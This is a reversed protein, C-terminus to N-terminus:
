LYERSMGTNEPEVYSQWIELGQKIKRRPIEKVERRPQLGM